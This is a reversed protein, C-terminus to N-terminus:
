RREAVADSGAHISGAVSDSGAGVANQASSFTITALFYAALLAFTVRIANLM